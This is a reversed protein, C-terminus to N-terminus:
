ASNQIFLDNFGMQTPIDDDAAIGQTLVFLAMKQRPVKVIITPLSVDGSESVKKYPGQCEEM